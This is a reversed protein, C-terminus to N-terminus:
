RQIFVRVRVKAEAHIVHARLFDSARPDALLATVLAAADGIEAAAEIARNSQLLQEIETRLMGQHLEDTPASKASRKPLIKGIVSLWDVGIEAPAALTLVAPRPLALTDAAKLVGRGFYTSWYTAERSGARPKEAAAFLVDYVAQAKQWSRWTTEDFEARHQQLWLAAAAAVQPTAASTGAFDLDALNPVKTPTMRNRPVNPTFAAISHSMVGAPGWSGRTMWSSWGRHLLSAWGPNLGYSKRAGTVGVVSVTRSFRAPYVTTHPSRIALPTQLFDGSAFFMATGHEYARNVEDRLAASPTSGMAMSVVDAKEVAWASHLARVMDVPWVQAVTNAVRYEVVHALPAGGLYDDFEGARPDSVRIHGGALISLTGPGHGAFTNFGTVYRDQAGIESGVFSKSAGLDLGEPQFSNREAPNYGTDLHLVTVIPGGGRFSPMALDRARKLQSYEDGLHWAFTAPSPWHRSPESCISVYGEPAPRCAPSAATARAADRHMIVNPEVELPQGIASLYRLLERDRGDVLQHAQDWATRGNLGAAASRERLSAPARSLILWEREASDVRESEIPTGRSSDPAFLPELQWGAPPAPATERAGAQRHIAILFRDDFDVGPPPAAPAAAAGALLLVLLLPPLLSRPM